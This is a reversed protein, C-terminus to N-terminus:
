AVTSLASTTERGMQLKARCPRYRLPRHLDVRPISTLEIYDLYLGDLDLPSEGPKSLKTKTPADGQPQQKRSGSNRYKLSWISMLAFIAVATVLFWSQGPLLSREPFFEDLKFALM